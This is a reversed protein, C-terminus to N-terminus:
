TSAPATSSDTTSADGYVEERVRRLTEPDVASPGDQAPIAQGALVPTSEQPLPSVTGALLPTPQTVRETRKEDVLAQEVFAGLYRDLADSSMGTERLLLALGKPGLFSKVLGIAASRARTKEDATLKGDEASEKLTRVYTAWVEQVALRAASAVGRVLRALLDSGTKAHLWRIGFLVLVALLSLVATGAASILDLQELLGFTTATAVVLNLEMLGM